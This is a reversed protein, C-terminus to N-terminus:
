FSSKRDKLSETDDFSLSMSVRVLVITPTIGMMGQWHLQYIYDAFCFFFLHVSKIVVNFMQNTVIVYDSIDTASEVPLNLHDTNSM